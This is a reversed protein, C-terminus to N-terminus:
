PRQTQVYNIDGNIARKSYNSENADTGGSISCWAGTQRVLNQACGAPKVM